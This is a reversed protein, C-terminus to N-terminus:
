DHGRGVRNATWDAPRRVCDVVHVTGHWRDRRCKPQLTNGRNGRAASKLTLFPLPNVSIEISATKTSDKVSSASVTAKQVTSINSPAPAVYKVSTLSQSTLSGPGTLSWSVGSGSPDNTVKATISVSLGQDTQASSASLGVSIPPSSSSCSSAFTVALLAIFGALASRVRSM